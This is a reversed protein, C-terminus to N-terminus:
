SATTSPTAADLTVPAGRDEDHEFAAYDATFVLEWARLSADRQRERRVGQSTLLGIASKDFIGCVADDLSDRSINATQFFPVMVLTIGTWFKSLQRASFGEPVAAITGSGITSLDRGLRATCVPHGVFRIDTGYKDAQATTIISMANEATLSTNAAGLDTGGNLGSFLGVLDEDYRRAHADGIQRGVSRWNTAVNQKLLRDTLIVKGGVESTQVSQTTMGLDKDDVIDQGEVLSDVAIQGFKPFVGTDEGKRLSFKEVLNMMPANHETTFLATAIMERSANEMEGTTSTQIAM